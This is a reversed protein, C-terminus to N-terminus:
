EKLLDWYNEIYYDAVKKKEEWQHLTFTDNVACTKAGANKGAWIGNVMDEFVLCDTPDVQIEKAAQLYVDPAPKGNTIEDATVYADFFQDLDYKGRLVDVLERSNSTGMAIKINQSKLYQLFELAGEKFFVDNQYQDRAMDNWIRQLAEVSESLSFTEIFYHATEVFSMGEIDHALSDPHPINREKLFDEDIRDWVWMSDFLTGDLDFLVGKINNLM